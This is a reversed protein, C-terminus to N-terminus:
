ICTSSRRLECLSRSLTACPHHLNLSAPATKIKKQKTKKYWSLFILLNLLNLRIFRVHVLKIM